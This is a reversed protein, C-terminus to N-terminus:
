ILTEFKFFLFNLKAMSSIRVETQKDMGEKVEKLTGMMQGCQDASVRMTQVILENIKM